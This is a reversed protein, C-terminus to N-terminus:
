KSSISFSSTLANTESYSFEAQDSKHSNIKSKHQKHGELLEMAFNQISVPKGNWGNVVEMEVTTAPTSFKVTGDGRAISMDSTVEYPLYDLSEPLYKGLVEPKKMLAMAAEAQEKTTGESFFFKVWNGLRGTISLSVGDLNVDNLHGKKIEVYNNVDCHGKTPANGFLCPCPVNCSCSEAYDGSISWDSAVSLIPTLTVALVLLMAMPAPRKM